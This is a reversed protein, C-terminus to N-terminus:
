EPGVVTAKMLIQGWGGCDPGVDLCTARDFLLGDLPLKGTLREYTAAVITVLPALAYLCVKKPSEDAILCGNADLVIRDGVKHKAHCGNSEIVEVVIKHTMFEPTDEVMKRWRPDERMRTIQEDTYGLRKQLKSWLVEKDM